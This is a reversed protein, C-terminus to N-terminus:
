DIQVALFHVGVCIHAHMRQSERAIRKRIRLENPVSPM